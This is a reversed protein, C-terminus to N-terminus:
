FWVYQAVLESWCIADWLIFLRNSMFNESFVLLLWYILGAASKRGFIYGLIAMAWFKNFAGRIMGLWKWDPRGQGGEWDQVRWRWLCSNGWGVRWEEWCSWVVDVQKEESSRGSLFIIREFESPGFASRRQWGIVTEDGDGFSWCSIKSTM